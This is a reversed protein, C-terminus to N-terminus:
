YQANFPISVNAHLVFATQWQRYHYFIKCLTKDSKGALRFAVFAVM